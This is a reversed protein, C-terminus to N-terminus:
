KKNKEIVIQALADTNLSLDRSGSPFKNSQLLYAIVDVYARANLGGPNDKPMSRKVTDFLDKVTRNNWQTLFGDWALSPVEDVPNGSLDAGHCAQCNRGYQTEGRRAQDETYVGDWVSRPASSEQAAGVRVLAALVAGLTFVSWTKLARSSRCRTLLNSRTASL